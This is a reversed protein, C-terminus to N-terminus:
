VEYLEEMRAVDVALAASNLTTAIILFDSYGHTNLSLMAVSNNAQSSVQHASPWVETSATQAITDVFVGVTGDVQTGGTLTYTGILIYHDSGRMAYINIVNSDADASCLFRMNLAPSGDDIQIRCIGTATLRHVTTASKDTDLAAQATTLTKIRKFGYQRQFKSEYSNM